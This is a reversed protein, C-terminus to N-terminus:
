TSSGWNICKYEITLNPNDFANYVQRINYTATDECAAESTFTTDNVYPMCKGSHILCSIFIATFM